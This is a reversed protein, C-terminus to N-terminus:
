PACPCRKAATRSNLIPVFSVHALTPYSDKIPLYASRLRVDFKTGEQGSASRTRGVVEKIRPLTTHQSGRRAQSPLQSVKQYRRAKTTSNIHASPCCYSPGGLRTQRALLM